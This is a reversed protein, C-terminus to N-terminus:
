NREYPVAALWNMSARPDKRQRANCFYRQHDTHPFVNSQRDSTLSRECNLTVDVMLPVQVFYQLFAYVMSEAYISELPQGPIDNCGSVIM